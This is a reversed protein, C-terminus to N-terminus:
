IGDRPRNAGAADVAIGEGNCVTRFARVAEETEADTRADLLERAIERLHAVVSDAIM